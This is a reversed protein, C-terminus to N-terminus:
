RMYFVPARTGFPLRKGEPLLVAHDRRVVFRDCMGDTIILIPGTKPFDHAEEILRIAPQLVTGGRGRIQVRGAIDDPSLFGADYAAADCFVVRVRPVERSSAYSAIAGLAMGLLQPPMSGSTDIVVAFTRPIMVDEPVVWSPRPIDPTAAQRRSSRAFTRRRELPQFFADFWQALDVDWPIPPQQIARIEELLGAPLLGRGQREHYVLGRSLCGRYFEDLTAGQGSAWWDPTEPEIMDGLGSGRLTTLKRMRRLDTAITDYISEASLGKLAPDYLGGFAPMVGIRMEILWSNIAYDCAVNWLFPDRGRRRVHHCLGVHLVEHAMVFRAEMETMGVSPNIYIERRYANVAAVSIQLARCVDLSEILKFSEVLAGLLPYSSLFWGRAIQSNSRKSATNGLSTQEGGAVRISQEVAEVIGLHLLKPWDRRANEEWETLPTSDIWMDLLKGGTGLSIFSDPVGERSFIQYLREVDRSPPPDTLRIEEPPKGLKLGALFQEVICDCAANWATANERVKFHEFGLHLLCHAIVHAWQEPEARRSSLHISGRSNVLAWAEPPCRSQVGVVPYARRWLPTFLPHNAVISQGKRLNAAALNEEGGLSTDARRAM